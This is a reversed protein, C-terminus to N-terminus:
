EGRPDLQGIEARIARLWANMDAPPYMMGDHVRQAAEPVTYGMAALHPLDHLVLAVALQEGTSWAGKPHGDNHNLAWRCRSATEEAFEDLQPGEGRAAPGPVASLHPGEGTAAAPPAADLSAQFDRMKAMEPGEHLTYFGEMGCGIIVSEIVRKAHATGLGSLNAFLETTTAAASIGTVYSTALSLLRYGSGTLYIKDDTLLAKWDRVYAVLQGDEEVLEVHRAFDRRGPLETFTLLHVAAQHHVRDSLRAGATLAENMETRSLTNANPM